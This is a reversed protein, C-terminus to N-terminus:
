LDFFLCLFLKFVLPMFNENLLPEYITSLNGCKGLAGSSAPNSKRRKHKAGKNIPSGIVIFAILSLLRGIGAFVNRRKSGSITMIQMNKIIRFKGIFYCSPDLIFVFIISRM